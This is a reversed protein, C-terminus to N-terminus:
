RVKSHFTSHKLFIFTSGEKCLIALLLHLFVVYGFLLCAHPCTNGLSHIAASSFPPTSPGIERLYTQRGMENSCTPGGGQKNSGGESHSRGRKCNHRLKQGALGGRLQPAGPERRRRGGLRLNPSHNAFNLCPLAQEIWNVADFRDGERYRPRAPSHHPSHLKHVEVLEAVVGMRGAERGGWQEERGAGM